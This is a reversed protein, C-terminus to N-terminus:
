EHTHTSHDKPTFQWKKLMKQDLPFLRFGDGQQCKGCLLNACGTSRQGPRGAGRPKSPLLLVGHLWSRHPAPAAAPAHPSQPPRPRPRRGGPLAPSRPRPSGPRSGLARQGPLATRVLGSESVEWCNRTTKAAKAEAFM